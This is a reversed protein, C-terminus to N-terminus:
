NEATRRREDGSFSQARRRGTRHSEAGTEIHNLGLQRIIDIQHMIDKKSKNQVTADMDPVTLKGSKLDARQEDTLYTTELMNTFNRGLQM